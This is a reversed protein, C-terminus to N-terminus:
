MIVWAWVMVHASTSTHQSSLTTRTDGQLPYELANVFRKNVGVTDLM